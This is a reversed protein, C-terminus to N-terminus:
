EKLNTWEGTYVRSLDNKIKKALEDGWSNAQNELTQYILNLINELILTISIGSIHKANVIKESVENLNTNVLNKNRRDEVGMKSFVTDQYSKFTKDLKAFTTDLVLSVNLFSKTTEKLINTCGPLLMDVDP